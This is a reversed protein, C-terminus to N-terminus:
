GGSKAKVTDPTTSVSMDNRVKWQGNAKAYVTLYSGKVQGDGKPGTAMVQFDGTEIALDGSAAVRVATTTWNVTAKPNEAYDKTIYDKYAAPGVIPANKERFIVADDAMLALVRVADRAKDLELWRMSIDRITKEEAALDPAPPAPAACAAALITTAVLSILHRAKM